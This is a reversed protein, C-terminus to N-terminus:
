HWHKQVNNVLYTLSLSKVRSAFRIDEALEKIRRKWYGFSKISLNNQRCYEVQTLSSNRWLEIHREWFAQKKYIRKCKTM